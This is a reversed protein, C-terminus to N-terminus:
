KRSFPWQAAQGFYLYSTLEVAHFDELSSPETVISVRCDPIGEEGLRDLAQSIDAPLCESRHRRKEPEKGFALIGDLTPPSPEFASRRGARAGLLGSRDTNWSRTFRIHSTKQRPAVNQRVAPRSFQRVVFLFEFCPRDFIKSRTSQSHFSPMSIPPTCCAAIFLTSRMRGVIAAPLTSSSSTVFRPSRGCECRAFM